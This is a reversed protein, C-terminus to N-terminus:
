GKRRKRGYQAHASAFKGSALAGGVSIEGALATAACVEAFKRSKGDGQCGIMELCEAAVPLGTGGGVTGVILNPLSISAYLENETTLGLRTLGIAAESIAAVDQGCALFIATLANAAHATGGISGVQLGGVMCEEYCRVIEAPSTKLYKRVLNESIRTEAIVKKGRAYLLAQMTAKKDGSMNSELYWCEPKVPFTALLEHCIAETAFTVMNQGSADGTKFEFGIYLDRGNITTQVDLLQCHSSTQQVIEQLSDFREQVWRVFQGAEGINAFRFFPARSVSETLCVTSVGGAHSIIQAGRHYSAVLSGETTAMPIYFDGRAHTGNIRLPGIVGVPIRTFGIM